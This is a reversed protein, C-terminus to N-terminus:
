FEDAEKRGQEHLFNVVEKVDKDAHKGAILIADSTEVVVLDDVGALAIFKNTSRVYSNRSNQFHVDGIASNGIQDVPIM